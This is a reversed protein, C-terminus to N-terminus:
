KGEGEAYWRDIDGAGVALELATTVGDHAKARYNEDDQGHQHLDIFGPAVVLGSANITQKGKLARSSLARIKGGSIGVNRAGDLRSEPDMVRGNLIVLDYSADQACLSRAGSFAFVLLGLGLAALMPRRSSRKCKRM